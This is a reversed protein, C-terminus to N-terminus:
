ARHHTNAHVFKSCTCHSCFCIDFPVEMCISLISVLSLSELAVGGPNIRTCDFNNVRLIDTCLVSVSVRYKLAHAPATAASVFYFWAKDRQCTGLRQVGALRNVM